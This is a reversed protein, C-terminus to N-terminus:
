STPRWRAAAWSAAGPRAALDAGARHRQAPHRDAADAPRRVARVEAGDPARRGRAPRPGARVGAARGPGVGNKALGVNAYAFVPIIVAFVLLALETNRRNPAGVSTITTTNSASMVLRDEQQERAAGAARCQEALKKEGADRTTPSSPTPTPPHDADAQHVAQRRDDGTRAARPRRHGRRDRWARGRSGRRGQGTPSRRPTTSRRASAPRSPWSTPRTTPRAWAARAAITDQVQKQQYAPLYKLPIDPRDKHSRRCASAPWSRTSAGTSPSM